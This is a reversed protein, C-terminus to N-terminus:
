HCERGNPGIWVEEEESLGTLEEDKDEDGMTRAFFFFFLFPPRIAITCKITLSKNPLWCPSAKPDPLGSRLGYDTIRM